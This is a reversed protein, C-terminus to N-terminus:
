DVCRERPAVCINGNEQKQKIIEIWVGRVLHSECLGIVGRKMLIEIWVGRVLHSM